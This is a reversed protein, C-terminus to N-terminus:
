TVHVPFLQLLSLCRELSGCSADGGGGMVAHKEADLHAIEEKRRRGQAPVEIRTQEESLVSVLQEKELKKSMVYLESLNVKVKKGRWASAM